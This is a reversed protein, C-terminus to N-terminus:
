HRSGDNDNLSRWCRSAASALPFGCL